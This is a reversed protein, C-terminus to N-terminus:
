GGCWTLLDCGGPSGMAERTDTAVQVYMSVQTRACM